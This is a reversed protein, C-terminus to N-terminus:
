KKILQGTGTINQTLAAMGSYTINGSGSITATLVQTAFLSINGSGSLTAECKQLAVNAADINGSSTVSLVANQASGAAVTLDGKGENYLDLNSQAAIRKCWVSGKGTLTISFTPESINSNVVFKGAGPHDIYRLRPMTIYMALSDHKKITKDFAIKLTSDVVETKLVEVINDQGRISVSYTNGLIVTIDGSFNSRISHFGTLDRTHSKIDGKGVRGFVNAKCGAFVCAAVLFCPLIVICFTKRM